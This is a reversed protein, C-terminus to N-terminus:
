SIADTLTRPRRPRRPHRSVYLPAAGLTGGVPRSPDIATALTTALPALEARLRSYISGPHRQNAPEM